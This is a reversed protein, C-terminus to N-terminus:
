AQRLLSSAFSVAEILDTVIGNTGKIGKDHPKNRDLLFAKMGLKKPLIVDLELEDGVMLTEFAEVGLDRM